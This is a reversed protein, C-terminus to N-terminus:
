IAAIIFALLESYRVGLRTQEVGDDDTWTTSIFMGYNGADLGEATFADQLDQAIIGFHIRANDGKSAVASKWKFKRLLGKAAVAVRTEADTLAEIDQKENRDSTQITANTAYIDDFRAVGTGLDITDDTVTGDVTTIPRISGTGDHFRLGVVGTGITLDGGKTGISGIITGNKRFDVVNGDSDMRNFLAVTDSSRASALYGSAAIAHGADGSAGNDAPNVDTTGVLLNGSSDIRMKEAISSGSSGYNRFIYNGNDNLNFYIDDQYKQLQFNGDNNTIQSVVNEVNEYLELKASPSATGIGVNGGYKIAISDTNSNNGYHSLTIVGTGSGDGQTYKLIGAKDTAADEGLYMESLSSSGYLHLKADPSSTGIGVNGSSDIRMAEATNTGGSATYFLM